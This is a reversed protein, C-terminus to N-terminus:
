SPLFKDPCRNLQVFASSELSGSRLPCGVRTNDLTREWEDDDNSRGRASSSSDDRGSKVALRRSRHRTNATLHFGSKARDRICVYARARACICISEILCRITAYRSTDHRITSNKIFLRARWRWHRLFSLFVYIGEYCSVLRCEWLPSLSSNVADRYVRPFSAFWNERERGGPLVKEPRRRRSIFYRKLLTDNSILARTRLLNNANSKRTINLPNHSLTVCVRTSHSLMLSATVFALCAIGNGDSVSSSIM